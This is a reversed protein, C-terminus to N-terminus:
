IESSFNVHKYAMKCGKGHRTLTAHQAKPDTMPKRAHTCANRYDWKRRIAVSTLTASTWEHQHLDMTCQTLWKM